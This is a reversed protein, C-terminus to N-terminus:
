ETDVDPIQDRGFFPRRSRSKSHSTSSPARTKSPTASAPRSPSAAASRSASAIASQSPAATRSISPASSVSAAPSAAVSKSPFTSASISPINSLSAAPTSSKSPASSISAAPISSQSPASSVSAAPSAAVAVNSISMNYMQPAITAIAPATSVTYVKVNYQRGGVVSVTLSEPAGLGGTNSSAILTAGDYVELVL